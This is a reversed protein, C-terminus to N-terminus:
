KKTERACFPSCIGFVFYVVLFCWYQFQSCCFVNSYVDGDAWFWVIPAAADESLIIYEWLRWWIEVKVWFWLQFWKLFWMENCRWESTTEVFFARQCLLIACEATQSSCRVSFWFRHYVHSWKWLNIGSTPSMHSPAGSQKWLFFFFFTSEVSCTSFDVVLKLPARLWFLTLSSTCNDQLGSCRRPQITVQSLATIYSLLLPISRLPLYLTSFTASESICMCIVSSCSELSQRVHLPCFSQEVCVCCKRKVQTTVCLLRTWLNGSLDTFTVDSQSWLSQPRIQYINCAECYEQYFLNTEQRQRIVVELFICTCCCICNQSKHATSQNTFVFLDSM